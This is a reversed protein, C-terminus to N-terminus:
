ITDLKHIVKRIEDPVSELNKNIETSDMKISILEYENLIRVSIRKRTDNLYLELEQLKIQTTSYDSIRLKYALENKNHKEYLEFNGDISKTSNHQNFNDLESISILLKNISDKGVHKGNKAHFYIGQTENDLTKIARGCAIHLGSSQFPINEERDNCSIIVLLLLLLFTHQILSM